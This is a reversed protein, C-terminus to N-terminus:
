SKQHSQTTKFIEQFVNVKEIAQYVLDPEIFGVEGIKFWWIPSRCEGMFLKMLQRKSARITVTTTLLSLSLYTIM